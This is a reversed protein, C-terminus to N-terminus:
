KVLKSITKFEETGSTQCLEFLISEYTSLFAGEKKMRKLAVRMDRRQRSSICDVIVVATKGQAILDLVTQLVCVHSEIGFVLVIDRNIDKLKSEFTDSGLCSFSTKEIIPSSEDIADQLKSVTTGLGKPYQESVILPIKLVNLGNLLIKCRELLHQSNFMVPVLKEQLDIM